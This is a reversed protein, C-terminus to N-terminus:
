IKRSILESAIHVDIEAWDRDMEINANRALQRLEEIKNKLVFLSKTSTKRLSEKIGM